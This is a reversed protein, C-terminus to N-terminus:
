VGLNAFIGGGATMVWLLNGLIGGVLSLASAGLLYMTRRKLLRSFEDKIIAILTEEHATLIEQADSGERESQALAECVDTLEQCGRGRAVQQLAAFPTMRQDNMLTLAEAVLQQMLLLPKVPTTQYRELISLPAEYGALATKIYSVFSPTLMRLRRREKQAQVLPRRPIIVGIYLEVALAGVLLLTRQTGQAGGAIALLLLVGALPLAATQGLIFRGTMGRRTPLSRFGAWALRAREFQMLGLAALLVGAVSLLAYPAGPVTLFNNM